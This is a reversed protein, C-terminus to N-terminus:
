RLLGPMSGVGFGAVRCRPSVRLALYFGQLKEINLSRFHPLKYLVAGILSGTM